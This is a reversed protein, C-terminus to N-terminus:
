LRPGSDVVGRWSHSTNCVVVHRSGAPDGGPQGCAVRRHARVVVLAADVSAGAAATHEPAEVLRQVSSRTAPVHSRLLRGRFGRTGGSVMTAAAAVLRM